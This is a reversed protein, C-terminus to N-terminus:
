FVPYAGNEQEFALRHNPLVVSQARSEFKIRICGILLVFDLEFCQQCKQRADREALTENKGVEDRLGLREAILKILM